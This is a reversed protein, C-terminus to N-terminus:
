FTHIYAYQHTINQKNTQKNTHQMLPTKCLNQFNRNILTEFNLCDGLPDVLKDSNCSASLSLCLYLSLSLLFYALM